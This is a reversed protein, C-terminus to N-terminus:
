LAKITLVDNALEWDYVPLPDQAPGREVNGDLAFMSGHCPCSFGQGDLRLACGQHTCETGTVLYDGPALMTVALPLALGADVLVTNGVTALTPHDALRLDFDQTLVAVDGGGGCGILKPAIAVAGSVVLFKRRDM